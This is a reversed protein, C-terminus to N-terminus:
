YRPFISVPALLDLVAVLMVGRSVILGAGSNQALSWITM